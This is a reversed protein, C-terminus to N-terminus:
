PRSGSPDPPASEADDQANFKARLSRYRQLQTASTLEANALDARRRVLAGRESNVIDRQEAIRQHLVAPISQKTHELDAAHALLDSLATEQSGLNSQLASIDTNIQAVQAQQAATLDRETPYAALLQADSLNQRQSARALAARRVAAAAAARREAPTLVREVRRVVRGQDNVIEYGNALAAAPITDGFHVVGAADKWRYHTTPPAAVAVGCTLVAALLLPVVRARM